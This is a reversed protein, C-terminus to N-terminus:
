EGKKKPEPWTLVESYDSLGSSTPDNMTNWLSVLMAFVVVPNKIASVLLSGLAGWSTLQNWSAGFYTLIPLFLAMVSQVWFIPNKFRVLLNVGLFNQLKM